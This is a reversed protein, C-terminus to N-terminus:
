WPYGYHKECFYTDNLAKNTCNPSLCEQVSSKGLLLLLIKEKIEQVLPAVTRGHELQEIIKTGFIPWANEEPAFILYWPTACEKCEYYDSHKEVFSGSSRNLMPSDFYQPYKAANLAIRESLVSPWRYTVDAFFLPVQNCDCM